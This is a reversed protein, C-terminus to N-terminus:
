YPSAMRSAVGPLWVRGRPNPSRRAWMEGARKATAANVKTMKATAARNPRGTARAPGYEGFMTSATKVAVEATQTVPKVVTGVASYQDSKPWATIKAPTCTPPRPTIVRPEKSDSAAERRKPRREFTNVAESVPTERSPSTPTKTRATAMMVPPTSSDSVATKVGRQM